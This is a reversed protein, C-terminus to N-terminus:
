LSFNEYHVNHSKIGVKYLGKLINTQMAAPGCIFYQSNQLEYGNETVFKEIKETTIYGQEGIFDKDRSMVPIFTFNKMEIQLKEMEDKCILDNRDNMGWVLMLKKNINNQYFYRIISLMPTIGVGGAILVIGNECNYLLPSFRGYPADLTAKSGSKIDGAHTTWDGLNKITITLFEKNSPQSSISFPHEEASINKSFVRIFGFQGPKYAFMTGNEPRLTLTWMTPSERTVREIIFKKDLFCRRIVKHYLFFGIAIGFYLIYVGRVFPNQASYTLMVHFFIIVVAAVNLVHLLKQVNYKGIYIKKAALRVLRLPKVIKVLTDIMFVLAMAATVIFITIAVDGLQTQFSEPFIRSQLLKHIFAIVIAIVAILSHFRFLRDLGFVSEILKPRASLILQANLWTFATAGLVMPIFGSSSYYGPNSTYILVIPLLPSLFYLFLFLKKM